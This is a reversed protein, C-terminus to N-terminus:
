DAGMHSFHSDHARVKSIDAYATGYEAKIKDCSGDVLRDFVAAPMINKDRKAGQRLSRAEYYRRSKRVPKRVGGGIVGGGNEAM